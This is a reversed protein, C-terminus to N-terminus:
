KKQFIIVEESIYVSQFQPSQELERILSEPSFSANAPNCDFTSPHNQIYLYDFDTSFDKSESIICEIGKHKCAQFNQISSIFEGFLNGLLWENGQLTALSKRNTLAPFWESTSDCFGNIEGSIVLFVSQTPTTEKIWQMANRSEESVHKNSLLISYYLSNGLIFPTLVLLFLLPKYQSIKSKEDVAIRPTHISPVLIETILFGSAIALPINGLTHASRPLFLFTVLFMGPIFFNKRSVLLAIGLVGAVGFLDLYIEETVFDINLIRFFSSFSHLGTQSASTFPSIGHSNIVSILWSSILLFTGSAILLGHSMGRFSRSKMIWIYIAIIVTYLPSETHSLTTLGSFLIAGWIDKKSENVFVKYIFTLAMLMFIAGLSRTLGGGMSFWSTMHPTLSFVLTAIASQLKNQTIEKAFLYFALICISNLIGPLWQIILLPTDLNLIDTLMAGLYFGLPPYTFPINLNNYTTYIPISYQNSLLDQIMVYFMGGDNLPFGALWIPFLRLWTGFLVAFILILVAVDDESIKKNKM